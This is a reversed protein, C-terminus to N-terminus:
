ATPPRRRRPAAPKKEVARPPPGQPPRPMPLTALAGATWVIFVARLLPAAGSVVSPWGQGAVLALLLELLVAGGGATVLWAALAAPPITLTIRGTALLLVAVLPLARHFWAAIEPPAVTGAMVLAAAACVWPRHAAVAVAQPWQRHWAPVERGAAFQMRWRETFVVMAFGLWPTALLFVGDAAVPLSAGAVAPCLLAAVASVAAAAQVRSRFAPGARDALAAALGSRVGCGDVLWLAALLLGPLLGAMVWLLPSALTALAAELVPLPAAEAAPRLGRPARLWEAVSSALPLLLLWPHALVRRAAAGFTARWPNVACALGWAAVAAAAWAWGHWTLAAM